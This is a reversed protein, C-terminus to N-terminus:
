SRNDENGNPKETTTIRGIAGLFMCLLAFESGYKLVAPDLYQQLQSPFALLTTQVAGGIALFRISSWKWAHQWDPILRLQM